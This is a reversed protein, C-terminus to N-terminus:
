LGQRIKKPPAFGDRKKLKGQLLSILMDVGSIIFGFTGRPGFQVLHVRASGPNQLDPGLTELIEQLCAADSALAPCPLPSPCPSTM